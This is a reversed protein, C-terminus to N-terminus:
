RHATYRIFNMDTGRFNKTCTGAPQMGIRLAVRQSATHTDRIIAGVESANLTHFAYEKCALAAEAAYGKHWFDRAFLYGIELIEQELWPQLTLGCQGIMEGTKKLVVAWLGFGLKEYRLLHRNLWGQVEGDTFPREYTAAMAEEDQMIRCLAPFDEQTMQRLILRETEIIM